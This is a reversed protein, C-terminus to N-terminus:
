PKHCLKHKIIANFSQRVLLREQSDVGILYVFGIVIVPVALILIILRYYGAPIYAHILVVFAIATLLIVLGPLLLTRCYTTISFDFMRKLCWLRVVHAIICTGIISIFVSWSPLGFVFLLYSLPLSAITVSEVPLHYSKLRGSAQVIITIPNSQAM